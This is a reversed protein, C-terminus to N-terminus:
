HKPALGIHSFVYDNSAKDGHCVLCGQPDIDLKKHTVPEYAEFSWGDIANPSPGIKRMVDIQIVQGITTGQSTTIMAREEKILVSGVPFKAGEKHTAIDNAYIYRFKGNRKLPGAIKHWKQYGVPYSPSGSGGAQDLSSCGASVILAFFLIFVKKM